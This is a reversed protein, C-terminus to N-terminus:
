FKFRVGLRWLVFDRSVDPMTQRVDVFVGTKPNLRYDLGGGIHFMWQAPDDHFQRGFGVFAYPALSWKEIPYRGILSGNLHNPWDFKEISTDLGAGLYRTLFYNVGLGVGLRGEFFNRNDGVNLSGFTDWSPERSDFKDGPPDLQFLKGLNASARGTPSLLLVSLLLIMITTRTM